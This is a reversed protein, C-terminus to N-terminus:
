PFTLGKGFVHRLDTMCINLSPPCLSSFVDFGECTACDSVGEGGQLTAAHLGTCHSRGAAHLLLQRLKAGITSRKLPSSLRELVTLSQELLALVDLRVRRLSTTWVVIGWSSDKFHKNCGKKHKLM